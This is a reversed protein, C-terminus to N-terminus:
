ATTEAGAAWAADPSVFCSSGTFSHRSRAPPASAASPLIASPQDLCRAARASDPTGAGGFGAVAARGGQSAYLADARGLARLRRANHVPLRISYEPLYPVVNIRRTLLLLCFILPLHVAM